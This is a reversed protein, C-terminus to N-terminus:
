RADEIERRAQARTLEPRRDREVQQRPPMPERIRRYAALPDSARREAKNARAM